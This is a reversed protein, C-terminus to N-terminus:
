EVYLKEYLTCPFIQGLHSIHPKDAIVRYGTFRILDFKFCKQLIITHM